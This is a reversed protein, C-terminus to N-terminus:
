VRWTPAPPCLASRADSRAFRQQVEERFYMARGSKGSPANRVCAARRWRHNLSVAFGVSMMMDLLRLLVACVGGAGSTPRPTRAREDNWVAYELIAPWGRALRGCCTGPAPAAAPAQRAAQPLCPPAAVDRPPRRPRTMRRAPAPRRAPPPPSGSGCSRVGRECGFPWTSCTRRAAAGDEWHAGNMDGWRRGERKAHFQRRRVWFSSQSRCSSSISAHECGWRQM